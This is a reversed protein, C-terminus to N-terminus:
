TLDWGGLIFDCTVNNGAASFNLYVTQASSRSLFGVMYSVAPTAGTAGSVSGLENGGRSPADYVGGMVASGTAGSCNTVLIITLAYQAIQPPVTIVTDTNIVSVNVGRAYALSGYARPLSQAKAGFILAALLITSLFVRIM